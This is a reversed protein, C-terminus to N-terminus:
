SAVTRVALGARLRELAPRADLQEYIAEAEALKPAAEAHQGRATLSAAHSELVVALERPRDASRLLSEAETFSPDPQAARDTWTALWALVAAATMPRLGDPVEELWARLDAAGEVDRLERLATAEVFATPYSWAHRGLVLPSSGTRADRAMGAAGAHDGEASRLAAVTWRWFLM